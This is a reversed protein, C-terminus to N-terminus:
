GLTWFRDGLEAATMKTLAQWVTVYHHLWLECGGTM